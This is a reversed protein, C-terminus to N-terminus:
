KKVIRKSMELFKERVEQELWEASEANLENEEIMM